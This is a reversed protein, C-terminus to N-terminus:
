LREESYGLLQRTEAMIGSFWDDFLRNELDVADDADLDIRIVINIYQWYATGMAAYLVANDGALKLGRRILELARALGEETFRWTEQRARMYCEYAHVNDIPRKATRREVEPSLTLELAEVISRSVQEQIDFVDDLTGSYKETWLHRDGAAEILEGSACAEYM